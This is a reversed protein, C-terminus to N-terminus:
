LLNNIFTQYKLKYKEYKYQYNIKGGNQQTILFYNNLKEVIDFNM